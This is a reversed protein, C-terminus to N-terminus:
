NSTSVSNLIYAEIQLGKCYKGKRINILRM